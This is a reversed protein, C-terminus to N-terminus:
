NFYRRRLRKEHKGNLLREYGATSSHGEAIELEGTVRRRRQRDSDNICGHGLNHYVAM